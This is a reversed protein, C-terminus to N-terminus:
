FNYGLCFGYVCLCPVFVSSEWFSLIKIEDLPTCSGWCLLFPLLLIQLILLCLFPSLCPDRLCFDRLIGLSLGGSFIVSSLLSSVRLHVINTENRGLAVHMLRNKNNKRAPKRGHQRRCASLMQRIIYNHLMHTYDSCILQGLGKCCFICWHSM